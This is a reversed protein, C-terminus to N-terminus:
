RAGSQMNAMATALRTTALEARRLEAQRLAMETRRRDWEASAIYLLLPVASLVLVLATALQLALPRSRWWRLVLPPKPEPRAAATEAASPAAVAPGSSTDSPAHQSMAVRPPIPPWSGRSM